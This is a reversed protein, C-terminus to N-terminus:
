AARRFVPTDRHAALYPVGATHGTGRKAGLTRVALNHHTRRWALVAAEFAAM